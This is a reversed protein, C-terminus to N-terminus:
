FVPRVSLEMDPYFQEYQFSSYLNFRLVDTVNHSQDRLHQLSEILNLFAPREDPILQWCDLMIQYMDDGVYKLQQLRLGKAIHQPIENNDSINGYPTGGLSCVEWLLCAFSWIDSKPHHQHSKFVELATWRTYDPIKNHSFFQAIGYSGIKPTSGNSIMISRACLQKHIINTSHLYAMGKCIGIAYEFAQKESMSSFKDPLHDRSSLLLDKLNTSAYEMIIVVMQSTESTGILNLINEHNGTKILVDLEQLMGRKTEQNMRKDYISYCTVTILNDNEHLTGTNVKGFKGIGLLNTSEIKLQSAPITRVKQKLNRYHSIAPIHEEEHIYGNNEVEIMPGQLTLEQNDSLRQRRNVIKSKLIIFGIIGAILMFTLLGIAVSLGIIVAPADNGDEKDYVNLISIGNNYGSANSYVVKSEGNFNSVLGLIIKHTVGSSLPANYYSGYFKGDGVIFERNIDEPRVEAAIYYSLGLRQADKYSLINDKSFGQNDDSNVVIIRYASVPGNNNTTQSLKITVKEGDDRVIVPQYPVNDPEGIKTVLIQYAEALNNTDNYKAEVSINYESASRLPSIETQFTDNSYVWVMPTPPYNSYTKLITATITYGVVGAILAPKSWFIRCSNSTINEIRLSLNTETAMNETIYVDRLAYTGNCDVQSCFIKCSTNSLEEGVDNSCYCEGGFYSAYRYHYNRCETACNISGTAQKLLRNQKSPKYCGLLIYELGWTWYLLLLFLYIRLM